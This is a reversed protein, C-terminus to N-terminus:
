AYVPASLHGQQQLIFHNELQFFPTRLTSGTEGLTLASAESCSRSLPALQGLPGTGGEVCFVGGVGERNFLPSDLVLLFTLAGPYHSSRLWTAKGGNLHTNAPASPNHSSHGQPKLPFLIILLFVM